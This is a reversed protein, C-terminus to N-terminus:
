KDDVLLLIKIGYEKEYKRVHEMIMHYKMWHNGERGSKQTLFDTLYIMANWSPYSRIKIKYSVPPPNSSILKIGM